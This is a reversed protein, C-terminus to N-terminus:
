RILWDDSDQQETLPMLTAATTNACAITSDTATAAAALLEGLNVIPADGGAKGGCAPAAAEAAEVEARAAGAAAAAAGAGPAAALLLRLDAASHPM